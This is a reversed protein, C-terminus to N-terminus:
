PKLQFMLVVPKRCVPCKKEQNQPQHDHNNGMNGTQSALISACEACLCLHRCPFMITNQKNTLCIICDANTDASPTTQINNIGGIGIKSDATTSVSSEGGIRNPNESTSNTQPIFNEMGYLTLRSYVGTPVQFLQVSLDLAIGKSRMFISSKRVNRTSPTRSEAFAGVPHVSSDAKEAARTATFDELLSESASNSIGKEPIVMSNSSPIDASHGRHRHPKRAKEKAGAEASPNDIARLHNQTPTSSKLTSATATHRKNYSDQNVRFFFAEREVGGSCGTSVYTSSKTRSARRVPVASDSDMNSSVNEDTDLKSSHERRYADTHPNEALDVPPIGEYAHNNNTISSMIGGSSNSTVTPSAAHISHARTPLVKRPSQRSLWTSHTKHTDRMTRAQSTSLVPSASPTSPVSPMSPITTLPTNNTDTTTTLNFNNSKTGSTKKTLLRAAVHEASTVIIVVDYVRNHSVPPWLSSLQSLAIPTLPAALQKHQFKRSSWQTYHVVNDTSPASPITPHTSDPKHEVEDLEHADVLEYRKGDNHIHKHARADTQHSEKHTNRNNNCNLRFPGWKM